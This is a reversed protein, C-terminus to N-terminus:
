FKLIRRRLLALGAVSSGLLGATSAADPVGAPTGFAEIQSVAYLNDGDVATFRLESAIIPSGLTTSSTTLGFGGPAPIQWAPLWSGGGPMMYELLYTDNDDAQVKFGTIDYAGNLNLVINDEPHTGGNWWVSNFDWQQGEPQYTGDVLQQQALGPGVSWFEPDTFYTGNLTVTANQTAGGAFSSLVGLASIFVATMHKKNMIPTRNPLPM